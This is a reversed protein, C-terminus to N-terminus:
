FKRENSTNYEVLDEWNEGAIVCNRISDMLKMNEMTAFANAGLPLMMHDIDIEKKYRDYAEAVMQWHYSTDEMSM